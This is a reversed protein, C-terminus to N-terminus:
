SEVHIDMAEEVLPKRKRVGSEYGVVSFSENGVGFALGEAKM